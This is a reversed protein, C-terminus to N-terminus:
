RTPTPLSLTTDHFSYPYTGGDLVVFDALSIIHGIGDVLVQKNQQGSPDVHLEVNVPLSTDQNEQLSKTEQAICNTRRFILNKSKSYPVTYVAM